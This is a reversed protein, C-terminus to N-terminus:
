VTMITFLNRIILKFFLDILSLASKTQNHLHFQFHFDVIMYRPPLIIQTQFQLMKFMLRFLIKIRKIRILKKEDNLIIRLGFKVNM